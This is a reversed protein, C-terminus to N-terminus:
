RRVKLALLSTTVVAGVLFGALAPWLSSPAELGPTKGKAKVGVEQPSPVKGKDWGETIMKDMAADTLLTFEELTWENCLKTMWKMRKRGVPGGIGPASQKVRERLEGVRTIAEGELGSLADKLKEKILAAIRPGSGNTSIM